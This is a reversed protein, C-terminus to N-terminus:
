MSLCVQKRRRRCRRKKTRRWRRKKKKAKQRRAIYPSLPSPTSISHTSHHSINNHNLQQYCYPLTTFIVPPEVQCKPLAWGKKIYTSGFEPVCARRMRSLVTLPSPPKYLREKREVKVEMNEKKEKKKKEKPTEIRQLPPIISLPYLVQSPQLFMLITRHMDQHLITYGERFLHIGDWNVHHSEVSHRGFTINDFERCLTCIAFNYPSVDFDSRPTLETVTIHIGPFKARTTLLLEKYHRVFRTLLGSRTLSNTGLHFVIIDPVTNTEEEAIFHKMSELTCGRKAFVFPKYIGLARKM